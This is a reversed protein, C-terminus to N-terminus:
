PGPDIQGLVTNWGRSKAFQFLELAAYSYSFLTVSPGDPLNKSKLFEIARSQFFANRKETLDWGNWKRIRALVEFAIMSANPALVNEDSLECHYRERLRRGRPLRSSLSGPKIWLDTVMASLRGERALARPIAYHERAGIQCAVWESM